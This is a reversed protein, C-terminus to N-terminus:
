KHKKPRNNRVDKANHTVDGGKTDQEENSRSDLDDRVDPRPRHGMFQKNQMNNQMRSGKM